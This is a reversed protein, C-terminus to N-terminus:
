KFYITPNVSTGDKYMEFHLHSEDLAEFSASQGVTGITQGKEVTDGVAVFETTLLNSYVTKFNDEHSIVVTLGYRPDDKISEITGRESARVVSTKEAKIDLGLHTTWEDLTKSYVLTDEAFDKLIEGSVPTEFSFVYQEVEIENGEFSSEAVSSTDSSTTSKNEQTTIKVAINDNEKNEKTQVTTNTKNSIANKIDKDESFSVPATSENSTKNNVINSTNNSYIINLSSFEAEETLANNYWLFIAGFVLASIIIISIFLYTIKKVDKDEFFKM